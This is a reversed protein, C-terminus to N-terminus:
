LWACSPVRVNGQKDWLHWSSSHWLWWSFSSCQSGQCHWSMYLLGGPWTVRGTSNIYLVFKILFEALSGFILLAHGIVCGWIGLFISVSVVCQGTTSSVELATMGALYSEVSFSKPRWPWWAFRRVCANCYVDVVMASNLWIKSRAQSMIWCAESGCRWVMVKGCRHPMTVVDLAPTLPTLPLAMSLLRVWVGKQPGKTAEM